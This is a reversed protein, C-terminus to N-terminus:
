KRGARLAPANRNPPSRGEFRRYAGPRWANPSRGNSPHSARSCCTEIRREPSSGPSWGARQPRRHAAHRPRSATPSAGSEPLRGPVVRRLVGSPEPFRHAAKGAAPPRPPPKVKPVPGVNPDATASPPQLAARGAVRRRGSSEQRVPGGNPGATALRALVVTSVAPRGTPPPERPVRDGRPDPRQARRPVALLRRPGGGM